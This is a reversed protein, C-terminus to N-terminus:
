NKQYKVQADTIHRIIAYVKDEWPAEEYLWWADSSSEIVEHVYHSLVENSELEHRRFYSKLFNEM